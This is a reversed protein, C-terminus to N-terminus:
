QSVGVLKDMNLTTDNEKELKVLGYGRSKWGGLLMERGNLYNVLLTFAKDVPNDGQEKETYKLSNYIIKFTFTVGPDVAEIDVLQGSQASDLNQDIKVHYREATSVVETTADTFITPSAFFESGFLLDLIGISPNEFSQKILSVIESSSRKSFYKSKEIKTGNEDFYKPTEVLSYGILSQLKDSPLASLVRGFEARVAGKISSGPIIPKSNVKIIPLDVEGITMGKVDGVHLFEETHIKFSVIRRCKLSNHMM